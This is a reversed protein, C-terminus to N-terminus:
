DVIRQGEKGDRDRRYRLYPVSFITFSGLIHASIECGLDM